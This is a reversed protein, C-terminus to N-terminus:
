RVEREPVTTVVVAVVSAIQLVVRLALARQPETPESSPVEGSEDDEPHKDEERQEHTDDDGGHLEESFADLLLVLDPLLDPCHLLRV